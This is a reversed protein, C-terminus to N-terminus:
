DQGGIDSQAALIEAYGKAMAIKCFLGQVQTLVVQWGVRSLRLRPFNQLFLGQSKPIQRVTWLAPFIM